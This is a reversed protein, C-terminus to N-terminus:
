EERNSSEAKALIAEIESMVEDHAVPDATDKLSSELKAKLWKEYEAQQESSDFESLISATM